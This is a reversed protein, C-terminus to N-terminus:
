MRCHRSGSPLVNPLRLNSTRVVLWNVPSQLLNGAHVPALPPEQHRVLDRGRLRVYWLVIAALVQPKTGGVPRLRMAKITSWVLVAVQFPVLTQQASFPEIGLRMRRSPTVVPDGLAEETAAWINSFM